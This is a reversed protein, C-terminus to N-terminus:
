SVCGRLLGVPIRWFRLLRQLLSDRLLDARIGISEKDRSQNDECCDGLFRKFFRGANDRSRGLSITLTDCFRSVPRSEQSSGPIPPRIGFSHLQQSQIALASHIMQSNFAAPVLEDLWRPISQNFHWSRLRRWAYEAANQSGKLFTFLPPPPLPGIHFIIIFSKDWLKIIDAFSSVCKLQSINFISPLQYIKKKMEGEKEWKKREKREKKQIFIFRAKGLKPALKRRGNQSILM